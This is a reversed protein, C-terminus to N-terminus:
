AVSDWENTESREDVREEPKSPVMAIVGDKSIEVRAIEMGAARAAKIARKLDTQRFNCAGRAM